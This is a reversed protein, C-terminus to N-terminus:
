ALLAVYTNYQQRVRNQWGSEFQELRANPVTLSIYRAGVLASVMWLLNPLSDNPRARLLSQLAGLTGAGLGGDVGIDAYLKGENNLANLSQQLFKVVTGTGVNVGAEFLLDALLPTQRNIAFVQDLAMPNWYEQIYIYTAMPQTLNQMTGDWHFTAVLYTKYKAATAQTIGWNTPGGPDAPNNVYGQEIGIVDQIIATQTYGSLDTLTRPTCLLMPM